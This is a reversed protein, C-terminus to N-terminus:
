ATQDLSRSACLKVLDLFEEPVHDQPVALRMSVEDFRTEYRASLWRKFDKPTTKPNNAREKAHSERLTPWSGGEPVLQDAELYEIIDPAAFGFLGTLRDLRETESARTLLTRFVKEEESLTQGQLHEDLASKAQGRPADRVVALMAALLENRGADCAFVFRANPFHEFLFGGDAAFFKPMAGAGFVPIMKVRAKELAAGVLEDIVWVDHEGEVILFTEFLHPLEDQPVGVAELRNRTSGEIETITVESGDQRRDVRYLHTAPDALMAGSHTTIVFNIGHVTGMRNLAAALRKQSRTAIGREPEDIFITLPKPDRRAFESCKYSPAVLHSAVLVALKIFRQQTDSFRALELAGSSYPHKGLRRDVFLFGREFGVRGTEGQVTGHHVEPPNEFIWSLFESALEAAEDLFDEISSLELDEDLAALSTDIADVDVIRGPKPPVGHTNIWEFEFPVWPPQVFNHEVQRAHESDCFIPNDRFLEEVAFPDSIGFDGFFLGDGIEQDASAMCAQLAAKGQNITQRVVSNASERSACIAMQGAANRAFFGEVAINRALEEPLSRDDLDSDFGFHEKEWHESRWRRHRLIGSRAFCENAFGGDFVGDIEPWYDEPAISGALDEFGIWGRQAWRPGFYLVNDAFGSEGSRRAHPNFADIAVKGGMAAFIATLTRSKGSGNQGFLAMVGPKIRFFTPVLGFPLLRCGIVGVEELAEAVYNQREM